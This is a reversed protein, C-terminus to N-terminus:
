LDAGAVVDLRQHKNYDHREIGLGPCIHSRIRMPHAPNKMFGAVAEIVLLHQKAARTWRAYVLAYNISVCHHCAEVADGEGGLACHLDTLHKASLVRLLM